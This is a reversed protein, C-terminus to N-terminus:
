PQSVTNTNANWKYYMTQEFSRLMFHLQDGDWYYTHVSQSDAGALRDDLLVAPGGELNFVLTHSRYAPDDDSFLDLAAYKGDRSVIMNEIGINKTGKLEKIEEILQFSRTAIDYAVVRVFASQQHAADQQAQITFLLQNREPLFALSAFRFTGAPKLSDPITDKGFLAEKVNADRQLAVTGDPQEQVVVGGPLNKMEDILYGRDNRTLYYRVKGVSYDPNATYAWNEEVDVYTRGNEMGSGIISFSVQHPNSVIVFDQDSALLSRAFDHDRNIKAQNFARVTEEAGLTQKAFDIRVISMRSGERNRSKLAYLSRSDSSWVPDYYSYEGTRALVMPISLESPKLQSLWEKEDIQRNPENATVVRKTRGDTDSIWLQDLRDEVAAGPQLERRDVETHVYAVYDGQPSVSPFRGVGIVTEKGDGDASIDKRVIQPPADSDATPEKQYVIAQKGKVYSPYSGDGLKQPEAGATEPTWEYISSEKVTIGHEQGAEMVKKVYIITREDKWVPQEYYVDPGDGRLLEVYRKTDLEYLSLVGNSALILKKGTPDVRVENVEQELLRHFGTEDYVFLGQGAVPVYLTGKYESVGLPSGTGIDILSLQNQVQLSEAAVTQIGWPAQQVLSGVFLLVAAALGAISWRRLALRRLRREFTKRLQQKLELNVPIRDKLEIFAQEIQSEDM